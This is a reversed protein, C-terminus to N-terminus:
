VLGGATAQVHHQEGATLFPQVRRRALDGGLVADVHTRDGGIQRRRLDARHHGVHRLVEVHAQEDVVGRDPRVAPEDVSVEVQVPRRGAVPPAINASLCTAITVPPPEPIPRLM